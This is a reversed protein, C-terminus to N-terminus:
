GQLPMLIYRWLPQDGASHRSEWVIPNLHGRVSFANEVGPLSSLIGLYALDAIVRIDSNHQPVRLFDGIRLTGDAQFCLYAKEPKIKIEPLLDYEHRSVGEVAGRIIRDMNPLLGSYPLMNEDYKGDPVTSGVFIDLLRRSDTVRLRGDKVELNRKDELCTSFIDKIAKLIYKEM